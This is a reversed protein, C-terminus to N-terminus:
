FSSILIPKTHQNRANTRMKAKTEETHKRGEFSKVKGKNAEQWARMKAKTEESHIRGKQSQSMKAKTEPTAKKGTSGISMKVKTEESFVRGKMLMSIKLSKEKSTAAILCGNGNMRAKNLFNSRNPVGIRRLAKAEWLVADVPEIFIKRVQVVDPDGHEKRFADVKRSSTFYSVWLQKPHCGRAFRVGYYWTDLSSWGILYTFSVPDSRTYTKM